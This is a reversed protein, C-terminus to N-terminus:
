KLWNDASGTEIRLQGSCIPQKPTRRLYRSDPCCRRFQICPGYTRTIEVRHTENEIKFQTEVRKKKAQTERNDAQLSTQWRTGRKQAPRRQVDLWNVHALPLQM